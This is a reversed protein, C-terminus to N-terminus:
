ACRRALFECVAGGFLEPREFNALHACEPLVVYEADHIRGAMKEMVSPPAQTDAAAALVLTPAEIRALVDRRDFTLLCELARRYTAEPVNSMVAIAADRAERSAARTMMKPVQEAALGAMGRGADLPAVREAIFGKQWAGDSSGFRASTCTLVLGAIRRPHRAYGELAVMGGMSHGVLVARPLAHHDLLAELSAALAAFTFERPAPSDGYGPMDWAIARWGAAALQALQPTWQGKGGGVGHLLVVAPRGAVGAAANDVAAPAAPPSAEVSM